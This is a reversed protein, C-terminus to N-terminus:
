ATPRRERPSSCPRGSRWPRAVHIATGTKGRRVFIAGDSSIHRRELRLIDAADLGTYYGLSLMLVMRWRQELPLVRCGTLLREVEDPKLAHPELPPTRISRVREVPQGERIERLFAVLGGRLSKLYYPSRGEREKDLLMRSIAEGNFSALPVDGGAWHCYVSVVRSYWGVTGAGLNKYLTYHALAGRLTTAIM